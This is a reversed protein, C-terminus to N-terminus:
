RKQVLKWMQVKAHPEIAVSLELTPRARQASVRIRPELCSPTCALAIMKRRPHPDNFSANNHSRPAIAMTNAGSRVNIKATLALKRRSVNLLSDGNGPRLKISRKRFKKQSFASSM